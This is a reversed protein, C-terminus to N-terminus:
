RAGYLKRIARVDHITPDTIGNYASWMVSNPRNSHFLGLSHGIEHALVSDLSRADHAVLSNIKITVKGDPGTGCPIESIGRTGLGGPDMPEAVALVNAAAPDEVRVPTIRAVRAWDAWAEDFAARIRARSFGPLSM